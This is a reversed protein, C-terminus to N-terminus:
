QTSLLFAGSHYQGRTGVLSHDHFSSIFRRDRRHWSSRIQVAGGRRPRHRQTQSGPSDATGPGPVTLRKM